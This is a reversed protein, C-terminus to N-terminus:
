KKGRYRKMYEARHVKFDAVAAVDTGCTPCIGEELEIKKEPQARKLVSKRAPESSEKASGFKHPENSWHVAGCLRCKPASM